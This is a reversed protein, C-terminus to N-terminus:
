TQYLDLVELEATRGHHKSMDDWVVYAQIYYTGVQDLDDTNTFYVIDYSSAPSISGNWVETEGDPKLVKISTVTAESLDVYTHLTIKVGVDGVYIEDNTM